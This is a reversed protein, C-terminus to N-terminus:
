IVIEAGQAIMKKYKKQDAPKFFRELYEDIYDPQELGKWSQIVSYLVRDLTNASTDSKQLATMYDITTKGWDLSVKISDDCNMIIAKSIDKAKYAIIRSVGSAFNIRFAPFERGYLEERNEEKGYEKGVVDLCDIYPLGLPYTEISEVIFKLQTNLKFVNEDDHLLKSLEKIRGKNFNSLVNSQLEHLEATKFKINKELLRVTKEAEDLADQIAKSKIGSKVADVLNKEETKADALDKEYTFIENKLEDAKSGSEDSLLTDLDIETMYRLLVSQLKEELTFSNTCAKNLM